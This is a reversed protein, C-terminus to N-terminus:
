KERAPTEPLLRHADAQLLDNFQIAKNMYEAAGLLLIKREEDSLTRRIKGPSGIVVAGDPIQMGETVLANAAILCGSGIRAGNLVVANIGILSGDGIICGHLMAHHGVTVSQGIQLPYGPDTHLVACDQINSGCGIAITENDGRLVANFWISTHSELIVDGIVAAGPAIYQGKGRLTVTRSGLSYMMAAIAGRGM